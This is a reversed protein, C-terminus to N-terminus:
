TIPNKEMTPKIYHKMDHVNAGSFTKVMVNRKLSKRLKSPNIFKIMSDGLIAVDVTNPRQSPPNDSQNDPQSPSSKSKVTAKKKSPLTPNGRKDTKCRDQDQDLEQTTTPIAAKLSANSISSDLVEFRNSTDPKNTDLSLTTPPRSQHKHKPKIWANSNSDRDIINISNDLKNGSTKNEIHLTSIDNQILKLATVLSSKEELQKNSQSLQSITRHMNINDERLEENKKRLVAKEEKLEKIM